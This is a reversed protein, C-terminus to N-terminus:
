GFETRMSLAYDHIGVTVKSIKLRTSNMEAGKTMMSWSRAPPRSNWAHAGTLLTRGLIVTLDKTPEVEVPLVASGIIPVTNPM